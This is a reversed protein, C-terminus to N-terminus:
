NSQMQPQKVTYNLQTLRIFKIVRPIFVKREALNYNVWAMAAEYIDEEKANFPESSSLVRQLIAFEVDYFEGTKTIVCFNDRIRQQSKVALEQFGYKEAMTLINFCKQPEGRGCDFQQELFRKCENEIRIFNLLSAGELVNFVNEWNLQFAETYCFAVLSKLIAGSVGNIVIVEKNKERMDLRFMAAFYDSTVALVSRHASVSHLYIM